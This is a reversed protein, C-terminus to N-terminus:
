HSATSPDTAQPINTLTRPCPLEAPLTPDKWLQLASICFLNGSVQFVVHNRATYTRGDNM